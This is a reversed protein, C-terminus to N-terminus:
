LREGSYKRDLNKRTEALKRQNESVVHEMFRERSTLNGLAEIMKGRIRFAEILLKSHEELAERDNFERQAKIVNPETVVKAKIHGENLKEGIAAAGNRVSLEKDAKIQDLQMEAAARERMKSVRYSAAKEFLRAEEAAANVIDEVSFDLRDLLQQLPQVSTPPKM